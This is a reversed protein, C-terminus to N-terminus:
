LIKVGYINILDGNSCRISLNKVKKDNLYCLANESIMLNWSGSQFVLKVHEPLVTSLPICINCSQGSGIIIPVGEKAMYNNYSTDNSYDCYLLFKENNKEVIYYTKIKLIINETRGAMDYVKTHKSPALIWNGEQASINVMNVDESDKLWFDGIKKAPLSFNIIKNNEFLYINM